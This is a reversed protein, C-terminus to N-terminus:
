LAYGACFHDYMCYKLVRGPSCAPNTYRVYDYHTIFCVCRNLPCHAHHASARDSQSGARLGGPPAVGGTKRENSRLSRVSRYRGPLRREGVGISCDALVPWAAHHQDRRVPLLLLLRSIDAQPMPQRPVVLDIWVTHARGHHRRRQPQRSLDGGGSGHEPLHGGGEVDRVVIGDYTM